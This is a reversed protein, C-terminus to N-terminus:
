RDRARWRRTWMRAGSTQQSSSIQGCNPVSVSSSQKGNSPILSHKFFTTILATSHPKWAPLKRSNFTKMSVALRTKKSSTKTKMRTTQKPKNLRHM